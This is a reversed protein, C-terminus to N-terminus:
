QLCLAKRTRLWPWFFTGALNKKIKKHHGKPSVWGFENCGSLWDPSFKRIGSAIEM